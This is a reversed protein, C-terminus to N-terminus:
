EAADSKRGGWARCIGRDSNELFTVIGGVIAQSHAESRLGALADSVNLGSRYLIRFARKVAQREAAGLGARRMGVVNLGAVQNLASGRVTCFPPVDKTVACGAGLMALEGIKVFQHVSVNGSVFAKRGVQVYGGLAAGSAMIVDDAVQVNHGIHVNTMLFCGAGVRTTSGPPTGRHITVGERLKCGPGIEVFSEAGSFGTDQPEDGLVAGAHVGCGAGLSVGGFVTVHPGIRCDDAVCAGAAVYSGPGISVNQGIQVGPEVIASPHIQKISM